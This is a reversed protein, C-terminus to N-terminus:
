GTFVAFTVKATVPPNLPTNDNNVLQVWITHADDPLDPWQYSIAASVVYTGSATLAPIGPNTPAVVDLYYIIHGEGAANAQGAKDVLNFGSVQVTITVNAEIQVSGPVPEM